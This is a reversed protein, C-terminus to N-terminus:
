LYERPYLILIDALYPNNEKRHVYTDNSFCKYFIPKAPLVVM